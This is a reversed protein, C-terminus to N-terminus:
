LHSYLYKFINSIEEPECQKFILLGSTFGLGRLSYLVYYHKFVAIIDVQLRGRDASFKRLETKGNKMENTKIIALM